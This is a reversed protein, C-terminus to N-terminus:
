RRRVVARPANALIVPSVDSLMQEPLERSTATGAPQNSSQARLEKLHELMPVLEPVPYAELEKRTIEFVEAAESTGALLEERAFHCLALLRVRKGSAGAKSAQRMADLYRDRGTSIDGKRFALLGETATFTLSDESSSASSRIRNFVAEAEGIEGMGVLAVALNNNLMSDDPNASLVAKTLKVGTEYDRLVVSCIYSGVIAPQSSFPEDLSWKQCQQVATQWEQGHYAQLARAEFTRPVDDLYRPDLELSTLHERAWV